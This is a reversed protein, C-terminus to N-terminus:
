VIRHVADAANRDLEGMVVKAAGKVDFHVAANDAEEPGGDTEQLEGFQAL